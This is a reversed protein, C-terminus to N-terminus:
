LCPLVIFLVSLLLIFILVSMKIVGKLLLFVAFLSFVIVLGYEM